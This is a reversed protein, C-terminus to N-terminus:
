QKSQRLYTKIAAICIAIVSQAAWTGTNLIIDFLRMDTVDIGYFEQFRRQQSAERMKTEEFIEDYSRNDRQAIRQVRKELPARLYIKVDAYDQAIWGAIYADIVVDGKSAANRTRDDIELDISPDKEAILSFESLSVGREKALQRFIEGASIYRLKFEKALAEAVTSKGAGHKGSVAITLPM